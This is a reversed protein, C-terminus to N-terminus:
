ADRVNDLSVLAVCRTSETRPRQRRPARTLSGNPRAGLSHGITEEGARDPSDMGDMMCFSQEFRDGRLLRSKGCM